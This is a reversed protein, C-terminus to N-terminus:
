RCFNLSKSVLSGSLMVQGVFGDYYLFVIAIEVIFDEEIKLSEIVADSMAASATPEDSSPSLATSVFAICFLATVEAFTSVVTAFVPLFTAIDM